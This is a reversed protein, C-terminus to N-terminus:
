LEGDLVVSILFGTYQGCGDVFVAVTVAVVGPPCVIVAVALEVTVRLYSMVADSPHCYGEDSLAAQGIDRLEALASKASIM